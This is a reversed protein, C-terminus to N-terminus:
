REQEEKLIRDVESFFDNLLQQVDIFEYPVGHDSAHRHVHDFAWIRGAHKFKKPPKVGHANDYGMLRRGGPAHLTLSYRIGHPVNSSVRILRADIKVWYGNQQDLVSGDLDLLADLALDRTM